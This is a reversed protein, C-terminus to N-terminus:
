CIWCSGVGEREAEVDVKRGKQEEGLYLFMRSHNHEGHQM